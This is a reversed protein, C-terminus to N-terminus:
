RPRASMAPSMHHTMANAIQEGAEIRTAIDTIVERLKANTEQQAISLLGEGIPIRAGMLVSFQYTFHAIDKTRITRGRAKIAERVLRIKVPTLDLAAVQRLAEAKSAARLVGRRKIGSKELAHYEFALTSM